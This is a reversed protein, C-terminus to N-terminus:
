YQCLAYSCQEGCGDHDCVNSCSNGLKIATIRAVKGAGTIILKM